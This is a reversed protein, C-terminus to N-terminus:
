TLLLLLGPISLGALLLGCGARRRSKKKPEAMGARDLFERYEEEESRVEVGLEPDYGDDVYTLDANAGCHPCNLRKEPYMEGCHACVRAM